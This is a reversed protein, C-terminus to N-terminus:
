GRIQKDLAGGLAQHRSMSDPLVFYVWRVLWEAYWSVDLITHDAARKPRLPEIIQPLPTGEGPPAVAPLQRSAEASALLRRAEEIIAEGHSEPIGEKTLWECIATCIEESAKKRERELAQRNTDAQFAIAAEGRRALERTSIKRNRALIRDPLSAQAARNLHRLLSESRNLVKALSRLSTGDRYIKHVAAARDVDKLQDWRDRLDTIAATNGTQDPTEM